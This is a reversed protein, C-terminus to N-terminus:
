PKRSASRLETLRDLLRLDDALRPDDAELEAIRIAHGRNLATEAQDLRGLELLCRGLLIQTQAFELGDDMELAHSLTDARELFDRAGDWDERMSHIRGLQRLIDLTAMSGEAEKVTERDLEVLLIDRAEDLKGACSLGDALARRAVSANPHDRGLTRSLIEDGAKLFDIAADCQGQASLYSGLNVNMVGVNPHDPGLIRRTQKLAEVMYDRAAETKGEARLTLALNNMAGAVYVHEDGFKRRARELVDRYRIEAQELHGMKKLVGALNNLTSIISPHDPTDPYIRELIDLAEEFDRQAKELEGNESYLTGLNNLSEGVRPNLDGLYHRRIDLSQRYLQEADAYAGQAQRVAALQSMASARQTVLTDAPVSQYYDFIERFLGEARQYLGQEKYVWGLTSLYQMTKSSARGELKENMSAAQALTDAARDLEGTRLYYSGLFHLCEAVEVHQPGLCQQRLTLCQRLLPYASEYLGLQSYVHGIIGMLEAQVDDQGELATTIKKVGQDLLARASLQEGRFEDPDVKGFLDVLFGATAEAKDREVAIRESQRRIRNAQLATVATFTILLVIIVASSCVALANRRIFKSVRYRWRDPCALVPRGLRFRRIDEALQEVSLYRREPEKQLAKMCITDLDGRLVRSLRRLSTGLARDDLVADANSRPKATVATSPKKPEDHLLRHMLQFPSQDAVHFPHRGTLLEFLLLGLSYVDSTTSVPDGRLQEPSAYAPTAVMQGTQTLDAAPSAPADGILKAIGFDLLKVQGDATVLINGPKLDRHVILNRHAYAVADCVQEFLDLRKFINLKQARCTDLLTDGEIYTMIFYPVGEPTVGGDLLRAIHPHQLRALIQREAFFRRLTVDSMVGRKIIKVAVVQEFLGDVREGLFVAGMGGRGLQRVLRYPGIREGIWSDALFDARSVSDITPSGVVTQTRSGQSQVTPAPTAVPLELARLVAVRQAEPLRRVAELIREVQSHTEDRNTM